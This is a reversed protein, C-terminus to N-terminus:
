QHSASIIFLECNAIREKMVLGHQHHVIADQDGHCVLTPCRINQAKEYSQFMDMCSSASVHPRRLIVRWLSTFPAILVMAGLDPTISAIHVMAATGLSFGILVIDKPQYKLDTVAYKYVREVSDYVTKETSNGESVGYGAYDFVLLDCKLFDAIDVKCRLIHYYIDIAKVHSRLLHPLCIQLDEVGHAERASFFVRR